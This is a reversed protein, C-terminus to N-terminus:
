AKLLFTFPFLRVSYEVDVDERSEQLSELQSVLIDIYADSLAHYTDISLPSASQAPAANPSSASLSRSTSTTFPRYRHLHNPIQPLSQQDRPPISSSHPNQASLTPSLHRPTAYTSFIRTSIHNTTRPNTHAKCGLSLLILIRSRGAPRISPPMKRSSREFLDLFFQSHWHFFQFESISIRSAM